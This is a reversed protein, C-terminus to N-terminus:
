RSHFSQEGSSLPAELKSFLMFAGIMLVLMLAYVAIYSYAAGMLGFRAVLSSSVPFCVLAVICYVALVTKQRRMVIFVNYFVLSASALGSGVLLALLVSGMGTLDIGFIIQLVPIGAVAAVAEVFLAVLLVGILLRVIRRKFSILDRVLWYDALVTLSPRLFFLVLLNIAFSPMFLVNYVAQYNAVSSQEIAFKTINAIYNSCFTALFLPLLSVFIGVLPGAAYTPMGIPIIRKTMSADFVIYFVTKGITAVIVAVLIDKGIVLTSILVITSVSAQIFISLGSLDLRGNKQYLAYFYDHFADVLRFCCLAITLLANFIPLRRVFVYGLGCILMLLCSLTKFALYQEASFRNAADTTFFTTAEFVGITWLVQATAYAVSYDGALDTGCIRTVAILLVFSQIANATSGAANWFLASKSQETAGSM